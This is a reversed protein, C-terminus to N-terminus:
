LRGHLGLDNCSNGAARGRTAVSDDPGEVQRGRSRNLEGPTVRLSELLCADFSNCIDGKFSPAQVSGAPSEWVSRHVRVQNFVDCRYTGDFPALRRPW